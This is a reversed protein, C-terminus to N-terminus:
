LGSIGKSFNIQTRTCPQVGGLLLDGAMLAALLAPREQSVATAGLAVVPGSGSYTSPFLKHPRRILPHIRSPRKLCGPHCRFPCRIFHPAPRPTMLWHARQFFLATPLTSALWHVAFRYITCRSLASQSNKGSWSAAAGLHLLTQSGGVGSACFVPAGEWFSSIASSM